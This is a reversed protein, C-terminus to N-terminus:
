KTAATLAQKLREALAPQARALYHLAAHLTRSTPGLTAARVVEAQLRDARAPDGVIAAYWPDLWRADNTFRLEDLPVVERPLGDAFRRRVFLAHERDYALPVWSSPARMLTDQFDSDFRTLAYHIDYHDAVADIVEAKAYLPVFLRQVDDEHYLAVTRGDCYVPIRQWILWGGTTCDNLIRGPPLTGLVALTETPVAGDAPGVGFRTDFEAPALRLHVAPVLAGVVLVVLLSATRLGRAVLAAHARQLALACAPASLVIAEYLNREFRSAVAAGLAVCGLYPLAARRLERARLIVVVAATVALLPLWYQRSGLSVREWERTLAMALSSHEVGFAVAFRGRASPLLACAAFAALTAAVFRVRAAHRTVLASLAFIGLVALGLIATSHIFTWVVVVIPAVLVSRDGRGGQNRGDGQARAEAWWSRTCLYITAALAVAGLTMPRGMSYRGQVLLGVCAVLSAAPATAVGLRRATLGLLALLGFAGLAMLAGIGADGALRWMGYLSLDALWDVARWDAGAVTFSFPDTSPIAHHEIIWRGTALHWWPDPDSLRVVFTAAVLAAVAFLVARSAKTKTEPSRRTM